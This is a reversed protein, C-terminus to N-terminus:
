LKDIKRSSILRKCTQHLIAPFHLTILGTDGRKWVTCESQACAATSGSSICLSAENCRSPARTLYKAEASTTLYSSGLTSPQKTAVAAQETAIPNFLLSCNQLADKNQKKTALHLNSRKSLWTMIMITALKSEERAMIVMTDLGRQKETENDSDRKVWTSSRLLTKHLLTERKSIQSYFPPLNKPSWLQVNSKM